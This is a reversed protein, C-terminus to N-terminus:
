KAPEGPAPGTRHMSERMRQWQGSSKLANAAEPPMYTEDHKAFVRDAVFEGDRMRGEAVVGQGERFLDPLVGTYTVPVTNALDTVRFRVAAGNNRLVSGEEVLGGIRVRREGLTPKEILETPTRFFAIGEDMASLVLAAALGLLGLGVAVFTLRKHKPKM